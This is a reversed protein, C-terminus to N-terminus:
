KLIESVIDCKEDEIRFSDWSFTYVIDGSATLVTRTEYGADSAKAPQLSIVIGIEHGVFAVRRNCVTTFSGPWLKVLTGPVIM